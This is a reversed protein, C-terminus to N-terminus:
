DWVRVVLGGVLHNGVSKKQYLLGNRYACMISHKKKKKKQSFPYLGNEYRLAWDSEM